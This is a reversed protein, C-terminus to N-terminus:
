SRSMSIAMLAWRSGVQPPCGLLGDFNYLVTLKGAPTIKFVTGSNATGGYPTTSYLNGDRGQAVIGEFAPQLPDGSNTGFNYLVSFTQAHTIATLLM